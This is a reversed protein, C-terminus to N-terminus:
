YISITFLSHSEDIQGFSVRKLIRIKLILVIIIISGTYAWYRGRRSINKNKGINSFEM